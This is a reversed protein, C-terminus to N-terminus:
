FNFIHLLMLSVIVTSILGAVFFFMGVLMPIYKLYILTNKFAKIQKLSSTNKNLDNDKVKKEKKSFYKLKAFRDKLKAFRDKLKAFRDKLKAFRDKLKAFRDKLKAFNDQDFLIPPKASFILLAISVIFLIPPIIAFYHSIGQLQSKLLYEAGLFKLLAFYALFFAAVLTIMTKCFDNISNVSNILNHTKVFKFSEIESPDYRKLTTEGFKNVYEGKQLIINNWKESNKNYPSIPELAELNGKTKYILIQSVYAPHFTRFECEFPEFKNYPNVIETTLDKENYNFQISPKTKSIDDPTVAVHYYTREYDAKKKLEENEKKKLEEYEHYGLSM